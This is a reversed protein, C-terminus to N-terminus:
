GLSDLVLQSLTKIRAAKSQDACAGAMHYECFACNVGILDAKKADAEDLLMKALANAIDPYLPKVGAPAGCCLTEMKNEDYELLKGIRKVIDRPEETIGYRRVLPCPEKYIIQKERRGVKLRGEQILEKLLVSIHVVEYKPARFLKPYVEKFVDYCSPCETIVTEAGTAEFLLTNKEALAKVENIMGTDILFLGCCWEKEALFTFDVGAKRLLEISARAADQLKIGAWCGAVYLYKAREPPAYGAPLVDRRKEPPTGMPSGKNIISDAITNYKEPVMKLRRLEARAGQVIESIPINIPCSAHCQDCRTCLMLTKLDEDSLKEGRFLRRSADVKEMAGYKINGTAKFFPCVEACIGCLTCSEALEQCSIEM